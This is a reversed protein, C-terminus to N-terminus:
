GGFNKDCKIQILFNRTSDSVLIQKGKKAGSLMVCGRVSTLTSRPCGPVSDSVHSANGAGFSM